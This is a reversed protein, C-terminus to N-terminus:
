FTPFDKNLQDRTVFEIEVLPTQYFIQLKLELPISQKEIHGM